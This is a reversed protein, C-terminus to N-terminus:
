RASEYLLVGDGYDKAAIGGTAVLHNLYVIGQTLICWRQMIPIDDWEDFPM